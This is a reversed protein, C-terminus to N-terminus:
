GLYRALNGLSAALGAEHDSAGIGPPVQAAAISVRTAPGRAEFTWDLIMTGVFDPDDSEFEASMVIREEPVIELFTGRSVDSRAKTKGIGPTAADRYILEIEYHGGEHFEYRFVRGTMGDPPLWAIFAAPDEFARHVRAAPAAVILSARDIRGEAARTRDAM